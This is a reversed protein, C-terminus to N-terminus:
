YYYERKYKGNPYYHTNEIICKKYKNYEKFLLHKQKYYNGIASNAIKEIFEKDNNEKFNEEICKVTNKIHILNIINKLSKEFDKQKKKEKFVEFIVSASIYYLLIIIITIQINKMNIYLIIYNLNVYFYFYNFFEKLM